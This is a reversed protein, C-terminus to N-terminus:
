ETTGRLATVDIKISEAAALLAACRLETAADTANTRGTVYREIHSDIIELVKNLMVNENELAAIAMEHKEKEKGCLIYVDIDERLRDIAEQRTM